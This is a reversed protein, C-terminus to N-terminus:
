GRPRKRDPKGGDNVLKRGAVGESLMVWNVPTGYAGSTERAAYYAAACERGFSEVDMLGRLGSVAHDIVMEEMGCGQIDSAAKELEAAAARM